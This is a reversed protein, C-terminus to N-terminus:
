RSLIFYAGLGIAGMITLQKTRQQAAAQRRWHEEYASGEAIEEPPTKVAVFPPPPPPPPPASPNEISELHKAMRCYWESATGTTAACMKRYWDIAGADDGVPIYSM